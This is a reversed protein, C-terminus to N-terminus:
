VKQQKGCAQKQLLVASNSWKLKIMFKLDTCSVARENSKKITMKTYKNNWIFVIIIKDHVAM